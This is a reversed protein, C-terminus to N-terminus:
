LPTLKYQEWTCNNLSFINIRLSNSEIELSPDLVSYNLQHEVILFCIYYLDAFSLAQTASYVIRKKLLM